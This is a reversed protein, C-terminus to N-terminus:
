RWSSSHRKRLKQEWRVEGKEMAAQAIRTEPEGWDRPESLM